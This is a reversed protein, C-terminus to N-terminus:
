RPNEEEYVDADSKGGNEEFCTPCAWGKPLENVTEEPTPEGCYDCDVKPAPAPPPAKLLLRRCIACINGGMKEIVKDHGCNPCSM